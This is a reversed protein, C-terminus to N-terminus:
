GGIRAMLRGGRAFDPDTFHHREPKDYYISHAIANSLKEGRTGGRVLPRLDIGLDEDLCLKLFGRATLRVRNCGACFPGSMPSIFAIEWTQGPIRFPPVLNKLSDHPLAELPGAIREIMARITANDPGRGHVGGFPMEEIFRLHLNHQAAWTIFLELEHHDLDPLAVINIKIPAFGADVAARIGGLVRRHLTSGTIRAFKVPDLSDLSINARRVGARRLPEAKEKLLLANTSIALDAIGPVSAIERAIEIIDPRLLPEGGTLRVKRLGRAAMATVITGLEQADLLERSKVFDASGYPLCYFCRMNCRDTLSIRLYEIHRGFRDRLASM